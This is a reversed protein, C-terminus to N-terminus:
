CIHMFKHTNNIQKGITNNNEVLINKLCQYLLLFLSVLGHVFQTGM